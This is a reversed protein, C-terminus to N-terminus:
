GDWRMLRLLQAIGTAESAHGDMVNSTIAYTAAIREWQPARFRQWADSNDGHFAEAALEHVAAFTGRGERLDHIAVNLDIVEQPIM